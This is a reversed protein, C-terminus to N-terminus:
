AGSLVEQFTIECAVGHYQPATDADPWAFVGYTFKAGTIHVQSQGMSRNQRLMELYSAAYLVLTEAIDELGIGSGASRWLLLDTIQWTLNALKGLAIFDFERAEGRPAMPTLLRCPLETRQIANPLKDLDFVQPTIGGVTVAKTALTSYVSRIVSAM